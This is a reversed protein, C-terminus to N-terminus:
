PRTYPIENEELWDTAIEEFATQRYRYWEDALGHDYIGNKFRRFAGSGRIRDLMNEALVDDDISLCFRRLIAYEHIDFKTPLPLYDESALVVDTMQVLQKQWEPLDDLPLSNEVFAIDERGITVLEGSSRHIYAFFDDSLVDMEEAVAKVSVPLPM